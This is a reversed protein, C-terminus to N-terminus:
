DTWLSQAPQLTHVAEASSVHLSNGLEASRWGSRNSCCSVTLYTQTNINPIWECQDLSGVPHTLLDRSTTTPVARWQVKFLVPLNM